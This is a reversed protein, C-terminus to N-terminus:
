LYEKFERIHRELLNIIELELDDGQTNTLVTGEFPSIVACLWGNHFITMNFSPINMQTEPDIIDTGTGNVIFLFRGIQERYIPKWDGLPRVHERQYKINYYDAFKCFIETLPESMLM